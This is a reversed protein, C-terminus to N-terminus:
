NTYKVRLIPPASYCDGTSLIEYEGARVQPVLLVNGGSAIVQGHTTYTQTLDLCLYEGDVETVSNKKGLEVRNNWSSGFSCFRNSLEFLESHLNTKNWCPLYLKIESVIKNQIEIMKGLDLRFYLWQNGYFDSKGLFAIPGFANNESPFKASVPTDQILKPEYFNVEFTGKSCFKSSSAFSLTGNSVGDEHYLVCLPVCNCCEGQAYLGSFIAIPQFKSEMFCVCSQSVRLKEYLFKVSIKFKMKELEGQALIGNYSPCLTIYESVLCGNKLDWAIPMQFGLSLERENQIMTLQHQTVVVECNSGFFCFGQDSEVFKRNVPEYSNVQLIPTAFYFLEKGQEGETYICYRNTENRYQKLVRDNSLSAIMEFPNVKKLILDDMAQYTFNKKQQM